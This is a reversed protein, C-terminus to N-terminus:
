FKEKMQIDKLYGGDWANLKGGSTPDERLKLAELEKMEDVQLPKMKTALESLFTRVNTPNKAMRTDLVYDAHTQFGLLKAVQARLRILEEIIDVNTDICRSNFAKEITQRTSSVKCLQMIPIYHPYALSVLFNDNVKELSNKFDEPLGELEALTFEHTSNEENSNKSFNISLESMRTKLAQVQDRTDKDLDLGARKYDRVESELFRLDEPETVSGQDHLAKV